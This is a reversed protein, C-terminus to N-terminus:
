NLLRSFLDVELERKKPPASEPLRPVMQQQSNDHGTLFFLLQASVHLSLTSNALIKIMMTM